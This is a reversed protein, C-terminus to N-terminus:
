RYLLKRQSFTNTNSHARNHGVLDDREELPVGAAAAIFMIVTIMKSDKM